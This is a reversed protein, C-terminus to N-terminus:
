KLEIRAIEASTDGPLLVGRAKVSVGTVIASCTTKKFETFITTKLTLTGVQFTRTPCTGIVAGSVTGEIDVDFASSAITLKKAIFSGGSTEGSVELTMGVRLVATTYNDGRRRIETASTVLVTRGGIVVSFPPLGGPLSTLTGTFEDSEDGEDGDDPVNVHIRTAYVFGDRQLGKVEVRAGDALDSFDSGGFFETAADGHVERSDVEFTFGSQPGLFNSVIGNVQVPIDPNTNQITVFKALLSTDSPSGSV